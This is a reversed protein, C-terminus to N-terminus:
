TFGTNEFEEPMTHVSVMQRKKLTFGTNEFEEQRTHVPGLYVFCFRCADLLPERVQKPRGNPHCSAQVIRVLLTACPM